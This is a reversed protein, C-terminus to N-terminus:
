LPGLSKQSVTNNLSKNPNFHDCSNLTSPPKTPLRRFHTVVNVASSYKLTPPIESVDRHSFTENKLLEREANSVQLYKQSGTSAQTVNRHTTHAPTTNRGKLWM